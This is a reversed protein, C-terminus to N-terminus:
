HPAIANAAPPAAMRVPGPVGVFNVGRVDQIRLAEGTFDIGTLDPAHLPSGVFDVGAVDHAVVTGARKVPTLGVRPSAAAGTVPPHVLAPPTAARAKGPAGALCLAGVALCAM